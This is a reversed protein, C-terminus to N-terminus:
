FHHGNVGIVDWIVTKVTVTIISLDVRMLKVHVVIEMRRGDMPAHQVNHLHKAIKVIVSQVLKAVIRALTM